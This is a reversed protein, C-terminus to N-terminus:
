KQPSHWIVSAKKELLSLYSQSLKEYEARTVNVGNFHYTVNTEQSEPESFHVSTAVNQKDITTYIYFYGTAQHVSILAPEKTIVHTEYRADEKYVEIIKGNEFSFISYTYASIHLEPIGDNNMDFLAYQNIGPELMINEFDTIYIEQENNYAPIKGGLFDNYATVVQSSADEVSSVSESITFEQSSTDEVSSVSESSTAKQSSTDFVTESSTNESSVSPTHTYDDCSFMSFCILASLLVLSFRKM